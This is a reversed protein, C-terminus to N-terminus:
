GWLSSSSGTSSSSVSDFLGETTGGQIIDLMIPFTIAFTIANLVIAIACVIIATRTRKALANAADTLAAPMQPQKGVVRNLKARAVLACILAAIGLPVGGIFLSIIGLVFAVTVLTQASQVAREDERNPRYPPQPQPQQPPIPGNPPVEM